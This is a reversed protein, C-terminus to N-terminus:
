VTLEAHVQSPKRYNLALHPRKENYLRVAEHVGREVVYRSVFVADLGYEQKLIGNVREAQANEYPNGTEAMSIRAGCDHLQDTYAYACYQVGRDSHHILGDLKSSQSLAMKLARLSGEISLSSSLDYGVIKRSYADTILALYSFGELTALYTIDSVFM